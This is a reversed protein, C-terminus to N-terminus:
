KQLVSLMNRVTRETWWWSSLVARVADPIQWVLRAPISCNWGPWALLLYCYQDSLYTVSYTCNQAGSSPRLFRGFCTLRRVSFFLNHFTAGHQNYEAFVDKWIQYFFFTNYVTIFTYNVIMLWSDFFCLFIGPGTAPIFRSTANVLKIWRLNLYTRICSFSISFM